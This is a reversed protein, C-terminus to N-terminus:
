NIKPRRPMAQFLMHLSSCPFLLSSFKEERQWTMPDTLRSKTKPTISNFNSKNKIGLTCQRPRECFLCTSSAVRPVFFTRNTQGAGAPPDSLILRGDILFEEDPGSRKALFPRGRIPTTPSSSSFPHAYAVHRPWAGNLELKSKCESVLCSSFHNEKNTYGTMLLNFPGHYSKGWHILLM